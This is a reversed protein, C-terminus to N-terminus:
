EDPYPKAESPGLVTDARHLGYLVHFHQNLYIDDLNLGVTSQTCWRVTGGIFLVNQGRGGHNPSNGHGASGSRDALIPLREGLDRRLGWHADGERYGLSYAYSGALERAVKKFEQRRTLYLDELEGVSVAPPAQRGQAPCVVSADPSLAGADHLIPVFIGAVARPGHAEVAPFGGDHHDSYVELASWLLRLNNACASRQYGNWLHMLGSTCLGGIVLLLSAAVLLDARRVWRRSPTGLQRPSPPPATPLSRCRHEAIRALTSLRLGPLPAAMEADAALPALARELLELHARAEPHTYLHNEVERQTEPDLSKLLYGVLNEDM